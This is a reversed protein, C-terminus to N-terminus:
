GLGRDLYKATSAAGPDYVCDGEWCAKGLLGLGRFALVGPKGGEGTPSSCDLGRIVRSERGPVESSGM